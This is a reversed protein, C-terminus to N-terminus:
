MNYLVYRESYEVAPKKIRKSGNDEIQSDDEYSAVGDDEDSGKM